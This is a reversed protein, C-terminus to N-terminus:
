GKKGHDEELCIKLNRKANQLHSKVSNEDIKLEGAIERYCKKNYYFLEICAKQEKKLREICEMLAKENSIDDRDIPHMEGNNKMFTEASIIYEAHRASEGKASRLQMLCYNRTVSHLWSKFNDVRHRLLEHVLKEFIGMVADQAEERNELYKLCVGYVLHMYKSYLLGLWDPNGSKYYLDLLEGDSKEDRQKGQVWLPM